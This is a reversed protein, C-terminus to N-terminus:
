KSYIASVTLQDAKDTYTYSWIITNTVSSYTGAGSIVLVTGLTQNALLTITNGSVTATAKNSFDGFNDIFVQDSTSPNNYILSQYSLKKKTETVNWQGTFKSRSDTTPDSNSKSCGSFFLIGGFFLLSIYLLHKKM